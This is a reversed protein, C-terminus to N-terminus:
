DSWHGEICECETCILGNHYYVAMKCEDYMKEAMELTVM